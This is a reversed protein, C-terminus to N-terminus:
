MPICNLSDLYDSDCYDLECYQDIYECTTTTGSINETIMSTTTANFQACEPQARLIIDNYYSILEIDNVSIDPYFVEDERAIIQYLSGFHNSSYVPVIVISSIENPIEAHIAASLESFYFTEGFEWTTIDFFNRITTVISNKIQNDTLTSGSAKIVKLKAQLTPHAKAGFLLKIQGPHLVVTDSIMSNSLLSGYALRLDLPTVDEPKSALPDELWRKFDLFYGNQIIFTDIINSAAPDILHYKPSKHFWAFNLETRGSKRTWTNSNTLLDTAYSGITNVSVPALIWESTPDARNFYVYDNMKIYFKKNNFGAKYLVIANSVSIIDPTLILPLQASTLNRFLDNDTIVISSSIDASNSAIKINGNILSATAVSGIINNIHHILDAFTQVESGIVSVPYNTGNVQINAHYTNSSNALGTKDSNTKNGGVNITQYRSTYTIEDWHEGKTALSLDSFQVVVDGVGTVYHMPLTIVYGADPITRGTYDMKIKPNIIDALGQHYIIDNVDLHDPVGDSNEDVPLVSIKTVDTLGVQTGSDYTEQGLVNFNWTSSLIGSRSYNLNAQLISIVDFDSKLTDYDIVKSASNANWFKTTPSHFILRKARRVIEYTTGVQLFSIPQTQKITILPVSIYNSWGPLVSTDSSMSITKWEYTSHNYYMGVYSPFPPQLLATRINELESESFKRKYKEVPVGSSMVYLFIDSSSLLPEVYTSILANIDVVDTFTAETKEDYYLAGDNGFIKVNEYTTSPDHWAIYKSDGAFTRNVSRLKLISSDQLMYTNYDQGNVMRDQTYYVSPATTRVHELSESASGNQLSNILSFTFTFTQTRGISDVYTFSTQKDIVASQSILVNEDVSSRVWFDFTGSPINAFEGDGFLVRVRNNNRTEVEYKNRSQENNFIVNYAGSNDVEIWEGTKAMLSSRYYSLSGPEDLTNGTLPDVNNVWVDINNVNNLPIEYTQNPTVGDFTQRFRTLTGQKTFCMFGTTDSSDGLGDQGYLFTFNASNQPRRELIGITSDYETPVLEMPLQQGNVTASYKFVGYQQANTEVNYLEFLVDQIQFRDSPEVTGFPQSLVRDMVLIFQDKWDSNSSDNWRIQKNSLNNGNNDLIGESTSVSTIKVLGRAPIPRDAAYSILKALRLISEKRQATSLFNEHADMDLRYAILSAINAFTEIIGVLEDSEIFDNFSEPFYLKLYDLLSHKITDYDFAAFNVQQFSTYVQEWSEARSVLRSM